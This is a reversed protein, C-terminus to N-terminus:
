RSQRLLEALVAVAGGGKHGGKDEIRMEADIAPELHVAVVHPGLLSLALSLGCTASRRRRRRPGHPQSPEFAIRLTRKEAPHLEVVGM